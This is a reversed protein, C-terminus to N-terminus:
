ENQSSIFFEEAGIRYNTLISYFATKELANWLSIQMEFDRGKPSIELMIKYVDKFEKFNLNKIFSTENRNILNTLVGELSSEDEMGVEVSFQKFHGSTYFGWIDQLSLATWKLLLDYSEGTKAQAKVRIQKHSLTDEEESFVPIEDYLCSGLGSYIPGELSGQCTIIQFVEGSEFFDDVGLFPEIFYDYMLPKSSLNLQDKTQAPLYSPKFFSFAFLSLVFLTKM